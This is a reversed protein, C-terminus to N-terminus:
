NVANLQTPPSRFWSFFETLYPQLEPELYYFDEGRDTFEWFDSRQSQLEEYIVKLRAPPEHRM